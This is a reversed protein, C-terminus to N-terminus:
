EEREKDTMNEKKEEEAPKPMESM